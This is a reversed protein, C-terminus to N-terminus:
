AGEGNKAGKKLNCTLCLTRLNEASSDGGSSVAIIHDLSLGTLIGCEVCRYGDRKYVARRVAMPISQRQYFDSARVEVPKEIIGAKDAVLYVTKRYKGGDRRSVPVVYGFREAEALMRYVKDRGAAGEAVIMEATIEANDPLSLLRILMGRTDYGLRDDQLLENPIKTKLTEAGEAGTNM